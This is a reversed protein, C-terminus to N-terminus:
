TRINLNYFEYPIMFIKSCYESFGTRHGYPSMAYIKNSKSMIFFDALTNKISTYNDPKHEIALHTIENINIIIQPYKNKLYIKLKNCDSFLVIPDNLNIKSLIEDVKTILEDDLNEDNVIFRDGTRIHIVSFNNPHINLKNMEETIANTLEENPLFKSKIFNSQFETINKIPFNNNLLYLTEVKNYNLYKIFNNYFQQTTKEGNDPYYYYVNPYDINEHITNKEKYLFKCLPHNNYDIDFRLNYTMAIQLLFFSGRLFDGLGCDCTNKYKNKHQYVNVLKKLINNTFNVM